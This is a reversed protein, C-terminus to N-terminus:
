LNEIYNFVKTAWIGVGKAFAKLAELAGESVWEHEHVIKLINYADVKTILINGTKPDYSVIYQDLGYKYYCEAMTEFMAAKFYTKGDVNGFPEIEDVFGYKNCAGFTDLLNSITEAQANISEIVSNVESAVFENYADQALMLAEGHKIIKDENQIM